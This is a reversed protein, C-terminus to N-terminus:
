HVVYVVLRFSASANPFYHYVVHHLSFGFPFFLGTVFRFLRQRSFAFMSLFYSPTFAILATSLSRHGDEKSFLIELANTRFPNEELGKKQQWLPKRQQKKDQGM